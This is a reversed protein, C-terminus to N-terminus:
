NLSFRLVVSPLVGSLLSGAERTKLFNIIILAFEPFLADLRM